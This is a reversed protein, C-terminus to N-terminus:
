RIFWMECYIYPSVYFNLNNACAAYKKLVVSPGNQSILNCCKRSMIPDNIHYQARRNSVLLNMCNDVPM